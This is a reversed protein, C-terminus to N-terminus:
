PISFLNQSTGPVTLTRRYDAAPVFVDVEAGTVLSISFFGSSDTKVTVLGTGFLVAEDGTYQISPTSLIRASVTAGAMPAGDPLNVYGFLATVPISQAQTPNIPASAAVFASTLVLKIAAGDIRVYLTGLVDTDTAALSLTYFGSGTEVFNSGTLTMAAFSGGEKRLDATVDTNDLGTVAVGASDELYVVLSGVTDQLLIPCSM